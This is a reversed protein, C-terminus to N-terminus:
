HLKMYITMKNPFRRVMKEVKLYPFAREINEQNTEYSTFLMNSGYNFDASKIIDEDTAIIKAQIIESGNLVEISISRLNFLASLTGILIIVVAVISCIIIIRRKKM